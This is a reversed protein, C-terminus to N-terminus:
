LVFSICRGFWCRVVSSICFWIFKLRNKLMVVLCSVVRVKGRFVCFCGLRM